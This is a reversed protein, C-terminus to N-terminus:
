EGEMAKIMEIRKEHVGGSFRGRLWNLAVREAQEKEIIWAGMCLVNADNHDRSLIAPLVDYCLAARVNKIKNAAINMGQGTGCFLIGRDFKGSAVGEGVLKAYDPYDAPDPSHCGVDIVNYGSKKLVNVLFQKHEFGPADCGIAVNM